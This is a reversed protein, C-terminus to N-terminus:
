FGAVDHVNEVELLTKALVRGPYFYSTNFSSFHLYDTFTESLTKERRYIVIISTHLYQMLTYTVTVATSNMLVAKYFSVYLLADHEM